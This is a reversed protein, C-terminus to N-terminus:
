NDLQAELLKADNAPSECVFGRCVFATAKGNLLPRGQVLEPAEASPPYTSIAAVLDPRYTSWLVDTMEQVTPDDPHGLIVVEKIEALAFDLASLWCGFATPYRQALPQIERLATEARDRWKGRGTYAALHLLALAALANGSPTANDQLDKPRTFLAESDSGTDYFGGASDSFLRIMEEALRHAECFWRPNPNTQYLALLGLFLAAYDELYALHSAKSERWARLLRGNSFMHKLLFDANRIATIRYDERKLYRAAEAFARLMLANWVTLVKDDTAPRVRKSRFALLRAHLRSLREPVEEIAMGFHQALEEDEQARQLVNKGEFNGDETVGYALTFFEFDDPRNPAEGPTEDLLVQRIEAPTWVYFKGEEGESDADLSSFFGGEAHTLERQVFDLTEQCVRRFANALRTMERAKEGAFAAEKQCILYGHLYALALQANDYLMKEFHPVRWHEDTSYRAFGGGIVDYMGGRAMAQLAHVAVDRALKDGRSARKLLFEIAMPQPFKPAAGWGGNHWDYTQALTFAAQDLVEKSLPQSNRPLISAEILHQVIKESSELVTSREQKWIRSVGLLVERFSPMNYRRVPPFYTGGYFPKGDPTLFVSMPWGGHGTMAVVANMYLSDLDPRQERDVKINVFHENMLAATEEDEFSEHAMVHCWHCAAYGISLFIPKDEQRAKELAEPGWPYWDVPNEAHQLLYLSNEHALRNPM